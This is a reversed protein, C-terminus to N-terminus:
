KKKGVYLAQLGKVKPMNQKDKWVLGKFGLCVTEVQGTRQFLFELGEHTFRWYDIPHKHYYWAFPSGVIIIGNPKCIRACEQAANWPEKTHELVNYIYVIDFSEDQIQPCHCIDGYFSHPTQQVYNLDYELDFCEVETGLDFLWNFLKIKKTEQTNKSGVNLLSLKGAGKFHESVKQQIQEIFLVDPDQIQPVESQNTIEPRSSPDKIEEM